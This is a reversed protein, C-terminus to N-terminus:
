GEKWWEKKGIRGNEYCRRYGQGGGSEQNVDFIREGGGELNVNIVRKGKVM